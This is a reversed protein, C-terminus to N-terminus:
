TVHAKLITSCARDIRHDSHAKRKEEEGDQSHLEPSGNSCTQGPNSQSIKHELTCMVSNNLEDLLEVMDQRVLSYKIAIRNVNEMTNDSVPQNFMRAYTLPALIRSYIHDDFTAWERYLPDATAGTVDYYGRDM